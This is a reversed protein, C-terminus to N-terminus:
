SDFYFVIRVDNTSVGERKAAANLDPLHKDYFDGAAQAYSVIWEVRVVTNPHGPPRRNTRGLSDASWGAVTREGIRLLRDADAPKLEECNPGWLAGSYESPEGVIKADRRKVYEPLSIVGNKKAFQDLWNYENLERLTLWSPSHDIEAANLEAGADTPWGRRHSLNGNGDMFSLVPEFGDGTSVGAFVYGNRVDALIAFLDYCRDLNWGCVHLRHENDTTDSYRRANPGNHWESWGADTPLPQYLTWAGAKRTEVWCHIDTGM